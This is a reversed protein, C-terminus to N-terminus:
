RGGYLGYIQRWGVFIMRIIWLCIFVYIIRPLWQALQDFAWKASEAAAKALGKSWYLDYNFAACIGVRNCMALSLALAANRVPAPGFELVLEEITELRQGVESSNGIM